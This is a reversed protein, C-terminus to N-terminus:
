AGAPTTEADPTASSQTQAVYDAYARELFPRNLRGTIHEWPLLEDLRRERHAYWAPDIGTAAYADQWITDDYIEDWGDFRAGRKWAEHIAAGLRRDGRAMVAELVSCEPSHTQIKVASRNGRKLRLLRARVDDFHEKTPQAAWQLPTFPKPVLWGVSATVAAPSKGLKRRENSVANSLEWIGTIDEDREGPFGAMFYLKVRRWGAEYVQRVGEMLDVDTVKKRIARRL